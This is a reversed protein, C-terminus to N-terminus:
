KKVRPRLRVIRGGVRRANDSAWEKATRYVKGAWALDVEFVMAEDRHPTLRMRREGKMSVYLDDVKVVYRATM